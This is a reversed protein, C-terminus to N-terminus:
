APRFYSNQARNTKKLEVSINKLPASQVFDELLVIIDHDIFQANAGDIIVISGRPIKEITLRLAAKNLFSVDKTFKLLYHNGDNILMVASKFNSKIVFFVSALLGILVGVLLDSFLIAIVTILFPILQTFGKQKMERLITVSTLKYGVMLLIAALSALPIEQLAGPVLMVAGALLIGHSIGSVKTRAGAAVNASTRVIVSTVPLGGLLGSVVNGVGQAKLERNLPTIRHYPDIKDAAEISLLTELSAVIALTMAITYIKSDALHSFDPFMFFQLVGAGNQL